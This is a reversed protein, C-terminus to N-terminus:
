RSRPEPSLWVHLTTRRRPDTRRSRHGRAQHRTAAFRKGGVRAANGAGIAVMEPPFRSPHDTPERIAVDAEWGDEEYSFLDDGAYHLITLNSAEFESGDGPDRMLNRIECVIWSREEDFVAWGIPFEDMCNGPFSTMTRVAWATIEDRGHMRGYAHENYTADATFLGGFLTWDGTESARRVTQTYHDLAGQLESRLRV